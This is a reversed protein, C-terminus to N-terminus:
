LDTRYNAEIREDIQKALEDGGGLRPALQKGFSVKVREAPWTAPQWLQSRRFAKACHFFCAEVELRIALLALQGRATLRELVAPEATLTARGQVRLTEDTGPVMFLLAIRPNALINQLSLIMRNGKREPIFLTRENEVLVFGPLDGKPSVDAAGEANASSLVLFPARAIFDIAMPDLTDSVKVYTSRHAEGIIGRVDEVTRLEHAEVTMARAGREVVSRHILDGFRLVAGHIRDYQLSLARRSCFRCVPDPFIEV